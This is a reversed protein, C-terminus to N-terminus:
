AGSCDVTVTCENMFKVGAVSMVLRVAFSTASEMARVMRELPM